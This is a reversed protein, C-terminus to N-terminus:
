HGRIARSWRRAVLLGTALLPGTALLLVGPAYFRVASMEVSTGRGDDCRLRLGDFERTGEHVGNEGCVLEAVASLFPPSLALIGAGTAVVALLAFAIAVTRSM